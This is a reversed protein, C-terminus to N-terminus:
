LGEGFSYKWQVGLSPHSVSVSERCLFPEGANRCPSAGQSGGRGNDWDKVLIDLVLEEAPCLHDEEM